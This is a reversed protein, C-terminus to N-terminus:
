SYEKPIFHRQGMQRVAVSDFDEGSKGKQLSRHRIISRPLQDLSFYLILSGTISSVM